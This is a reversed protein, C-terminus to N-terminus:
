FRIDAKHLENRVTDLPLFIGKGLPAQENGCISRPLIEARQPIM